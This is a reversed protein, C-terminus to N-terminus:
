KSPAFLIIIYFELSFFSFFLHRPLRTLPTPPPGLRCSHTATGAAQLVLRNGWRPGWGGPADKDNIVGGVLNIGGKGRFCECLGPDIGFFIIELIRSREERISCLLGDTYAPRLAWRDTGEGRPSLLHLPKKKKREWRQGGVKAAHHSGANVGHGVHWQPTHHHHHTRFSLVPPLPSTDNWWWSKTLFFIFFLCRCTLTHYNFPRHRSSLPGAEEGWTCRMIYTRSEVFGTTTSSQLALGGFTNSISSSKKKGTEEIKGKLKNKTLHFGRM